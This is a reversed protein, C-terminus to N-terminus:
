RGGPGPVGHSDLLDGELTKFGEALAGPQVEAGAHGPHHPGVPRALAVQDLGQAPDHPGPGALQPAFLGLGQQEVARFAAGGHAEGLDLQDERAAALPQHDGAAEVAVTSAVHPQRAVLGGELGDLPGQGARAQGPAAVRDDALALHALHQLRPGLHQQAVELFGGAELGDGEGGAGGLLAELGGGLLHLGEAALVGLELLAQLGLGGLGLGGAPRALQGALEQRELPAQHLGADLLGLGFGALGLGPQDLELGLLGLEGLPQGGQLLLLGGELLAELPEVAGVALGQALGLGQLALPPQELLLGGM